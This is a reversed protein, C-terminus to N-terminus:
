SICCARGRFPGYARHQLLHLPHFLGAGILGKFPSKGQIIDALPRLLPYLVVAAVVLPQKAIGVAPHIDPRQIIRLKGLIFHNEAESIHILLLALLQLVSNNKLLGQVCRFLAGLRLEEAPHGVILAGGQIRNQSATFQGQFGGVAAFNRAIQAFNFKGSFLQQIQNVVNQFQGPHFRSFIIQLLFGKVQPLQQQGYSFKELFAGLRLPFVELDPHIELM